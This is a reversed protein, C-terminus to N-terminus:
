QVAMNEKSTLVTETYISTKMLLPEVTASMFFFLSRILFCVFICTENQFLALVNDPHATSLNRVNRFPVCVTNQSYESKVLASSWKRRAVDRVPDSVSTELTFCVVIMNHVVRPPISSPPGLRRADVQVHSKCEVYVPVPRAYFEFTNGRTGCVRYFSVTRGLRARSFTRSHNGRERSM